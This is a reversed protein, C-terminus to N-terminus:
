FAIVKLIPGIQAWNSVQFPWLTSVRDVFRGFDGFYKFLWVAKVAKPGGTTNKLETHGTFCASFWLRSEPVM